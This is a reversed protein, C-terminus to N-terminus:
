DVALHHTLDVTEGDRVRGYMFIKGSSVPLESMTAKVFPKDVLRPVVKGDNEVQGSVRLPDQGLVLEIHKALFVM